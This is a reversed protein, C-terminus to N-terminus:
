ARRKKKPKRTPMPPFDNDRIGDQLKMIRSNHVQRDFLKGNIPPINIGGLCKVQRYVLLYPTRSGEYHNFNDPDLPYTTKDNFMFWKQFKMNFAVTTYHGSSIKEGCHYVVAVLRYTLDESTYDDTRLWEKKLQMKSPVELHQKIKTAGRVADYNFCKMHLVINKSLKKIYATQSFNSNIEQTRFFKGLMQDLTVKSMELDLSFCISDQINSSVTGQNSVDYQIQAVYSSKITKSLPKGEAEEVLGYLLDAMFLQADQQERLHQQGYKCGIFELYGGALLPQSGPRSLQQVLKHTAHTVPGANRAEPTLARIARVLTPDALLAQTVSNVYCYNGDNQLGRPALQGTQCTSHNKSMKPTFILHSSVLALLM